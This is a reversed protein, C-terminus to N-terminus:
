KFLDMAKKQWVYLTCAGWMTMFATICASANPPIAIGVGVAFNSDGIIPTLGIVTVRLLALLGAILGGLTAVSALGVAIKTSFYKLFFAAVNGFLSVLLTGLLPM